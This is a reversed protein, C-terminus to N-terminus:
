LFGMKVCCLLKSDLVCTHVCSCFKLVLLYGSATGLPPPPADGLPRRGILKLAGQSKNFLCIKIVM